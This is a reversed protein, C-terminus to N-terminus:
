RFEVGLRRLSESEIRMATLAKKAQTVAYDPKGYEGNCAFSGIGIEKTKGLEPLHLKVWLHASAGDTIEDDNFNPILTEVRELYASALPTRGRVWVGFVTLWLVRVVGEEKDFIWVSRIRLACEVLCGSLFFPLADRPTISPGQAHLLAAAWFLHGVGYHWSHVNGEIAEGNRLASCMWIQKRLFHLGTDLGLCALPAMLQWVAYFRFYSAANEDADSRFWGV